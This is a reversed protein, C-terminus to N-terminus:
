KMSMLWCKKKMPVSSDLNLDAPIVDKKEMPLSVSSSSATNGKSLQPTPPDSCVKKLINDFIVLGALGPVEEKPSGPQRRKRSPCQKTLHVKM